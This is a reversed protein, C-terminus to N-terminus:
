LAGAPGKGIHTITLVGVPYGSVEVTIRDGASPGPQLGREEWNPKSGGCFQVYDMEKISHSSEGKSPGCAPCTDRRSRLKVSRFPTSSLANYILM